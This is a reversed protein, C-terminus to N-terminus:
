SIRSWWATFCRSAILHLACAARVTPTEPGIGTDTSSTELSTNM